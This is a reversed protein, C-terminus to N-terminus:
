IPIWVSHYEVTGEKEKRDTKRIEMVTRIELAPVYETIEEEWETIAKLLGEGVELWTPRRAEEYSVVPDPVGAILWTGKTGAREREKGEKPYWPM